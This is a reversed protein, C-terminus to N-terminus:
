REVYSVRRRFRDLPVSREGVWYKKDTLQSRLAELDNSVIIPQIKQRTNPTYDGRYRLDVVIDRILSDLEDWRTEGYKKVVDYKKCIRIVDGEIEQYSLVFLSQQQAPTIQLDSIGLRKIVAEASSGQLGACQALKRAKAVTVGSNLLDERIGDESRAKMDYGRGITVGSWQGPVHPHRSHYRGGEAGEVDFTIQGFPVSFRNNSLQISSVGKTAEKKKEISRNPTNSKRSLKLKKPGPRKKCGPISIVEGIRVSNPDAKLRPNNALLRNLTVGYKVAVVSLSEGRKLTHEM